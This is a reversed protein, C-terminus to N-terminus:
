FSIIIEALAQSHSTSPFWIQNRGQSKNVQTTIYSDQVTGDTEPYLASLLYGGLLDCKFKFSQMSRINKDTFPSTVFELHHVFVYGTKLSLFLRHECSSIPWAIDNLLQAQTMKVM